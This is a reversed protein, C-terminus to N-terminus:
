GRKTWHGVPPWTATDAPNPAWAVNDLLRELEDRMSEEMQPTRMERSPPILAFGVYMGQHLM